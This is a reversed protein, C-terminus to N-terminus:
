AGDLVVDFEEIFHHIPPLMGSEAGQDVADFWFEVDLDPKVVWRRLVFVHEGHPFHVVPDDFSRQHCAEWGARVHVNAAFVAGTCM